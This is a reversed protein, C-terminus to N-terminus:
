EQRNVKKYHKSINESQTLWQLNSLNNNHKDEDIHDVLPKGDPNPLFALAVLRNIKRDKGCISVYEYGNNNGTNGCIFPKLIHPTNRTLSLVRGRNSVFYKGEAGDIFTIEKFIEEEDLALLFNILSNLKDKSDNM